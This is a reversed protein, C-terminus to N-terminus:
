RDEGRLVHGGAGAAAGRVQLPQAGDQFGDRGELVDTQVHGVAVGLVKHLKDLRDPSLKGPVGDHYSLRTCGGGGGPATM